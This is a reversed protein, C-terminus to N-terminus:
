PNAVALPCHRLCNPPNVELRKFGELYADKEPWPCPMRPGRSCVLAMSCPSMNDSSVLRRSVIECRPWDRQKGVFGKQSGCPLFAMARHITCPSLFCSARCPELGRRTTAGRRTEIEAADKGRVAFNCAGPLPRTSASRARNRHTRPRVYALGGSAVIAEAQSPTRAIVILVVTSTIEHPLLVQSDPSVHQLPQARGDPPTRDINGQPREPKTSEGISLMRSPGRDALAPRAVGSQPSIVMYSHEYQVTADSRPSKREKARRIQWNTHWTRLPLRGDLHLRRNATGDIRNILFSRSHTASTECYEPEGEGRGLDGRTKAGEQKQCHLALCEASRVQIGPM